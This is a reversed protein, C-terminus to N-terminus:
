AFEPEYHILYCEKTELVQAVKEILRVIERTPVSADFKKDYAVSESKVDYYTGHEAIREYVADEKRKYLGDYYFLGKRILSSLAEGVVFLSEERLLDQIDFSERDGVLRMVQKENENLDEATIVRATRGLKPDTVLRGQVREFLVLAQEGNQEISALLAPIAYASLTRITGRSKLSALDPKFSIHVLEESHASKERTPAALQQTTGGHKSKRPRISVLLPMDTIGSIIATGVRLRKIEEEYESTLGEVSASVAKLDNPNTVKLIIQANVQSLVSKDLRAPRQSVICLGMGFKRGESAILRVIESTKQEGFGREPCYNHAEELVVLHPAVENIKRAHFLDKLLKSVIMQQIDPAIGKLNIVTAKGPTVFDEARMGQASFVGSERVLELQSLIAFKHAGEQAAVEEIVSNLNVHDLDKLSTYLLARQSNSLKTPLISIIENPTFSDRLVLPLTGPVSLSSYENIQQAYSKPKLKYTKLKEKDAEDDNPFRLSSYEGHTDIIVLPIKQEIIEELLVGVTYSKGAGTKALVALHKSLLEQLDARVAITTAEIRGLLASVSDDRLKVARMILAPDALSVDIGVRLPSRVPAVGSGDVMGIVTCTVKIADGTRELTRAQCLVTQIEGRVEDRVSLYELAEVPHETLFSFAHPTTKGEIRGIVTM